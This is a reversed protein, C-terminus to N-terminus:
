LAVAPWPLQCARRGVRASWDGQEQFRRIDMVPLKIQYHFAWSIDHRHDQLMFISMESMGDNGTCVALTGGM